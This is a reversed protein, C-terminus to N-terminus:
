EFCTSFPFEEYMDNDVTVVVKNKEISLGSMVAIESLRVAKKIDERDKLVLGDITISNNLIYAKALKFGKFGYVRIISYLSVAKGLIPDIFEVWMNRMAIRVRDSVSIVM